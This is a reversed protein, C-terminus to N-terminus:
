RHEKYILTPAAQQLTNYEEATFSIDIARLAESLQQETRIGAVASSVAPNAVAFGIAVAAPVTEKAAALARVAAAAGAVTAASHDLYAKPTKGTLWGGAVTGRALVGIGKTQLLDFCSEEPRRDLLSYQMMVTSVAPIAAFRRIVNPRISSIGYYRIKGQQRLTDFADIVEEYPDNLTGGHLQYLDIYDTGLRRLSDDAARLIYERRPNWRWGDSDPDWQNGVKTAVLVAKRRSGLAKGLMTENEGRNYLDATDFLNIGADVARQILPTPDGAAPDLSMCGFAIRSIRIEKNAIERYEM